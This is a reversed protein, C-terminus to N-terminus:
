LQLLVTLNQAETKPLVRVCVGSEWLVIDSARMVYVVDKTGTPTEFDFTTDINPDTVVPLGHV